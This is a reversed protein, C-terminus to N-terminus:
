RFLAYTLIGAVWLLAVAEVVGDTAQAVVRVGRGLRDVAQHHWSVVEVNGAGVIEALESGEAVAVRHPVPKRPPLRHAIADGYREPIHALLTGGLAVNLIQMGRCIALLPMALSLSTRALELEFEDRRRDVMYVTEHGSGGYVQPDVDGGGALVLGDLVELQAGADGTALLVPEVGAALLSDVYECPLSYSKGDGGRPTYATVGVVVSM